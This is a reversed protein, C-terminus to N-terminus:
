SSSNKRTLLAELVKKEEVSLKNEISSILLEQQKEEAEKKHIWNLVAEETANQMSISLKTALFKLKKHADDSVYLIKSM